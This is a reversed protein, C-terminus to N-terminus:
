KRDDQPRDMRLAHRLDFAGRQRHQTRPSDRATLHRLRCLQRCVTAVTAGADSRGAGPLQHRWKSRAQSRPGGRRPGARRGGHQAARRCLQVSGATCLRVFASAACHLTTVLCHKPSAHRCSVTASPICGPLSRRLLAAFTAAAHDRKKCAVLVMRTFSRVHRQHSM